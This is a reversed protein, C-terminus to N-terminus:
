CFLFFTHFVDIECFGDRTHHTRYIHEPGGGFSVKMLSKADRRNKPHVLRRLKSELKPIWHGLSKTQIYGLMGSADDDQAYYGGLFALLGEEDVYASVSDSRYLRKAEICFRRNPVRSKCVLRIDLRPRRKGKRAAGTAPDPVANVPDENHVSYLAMWDETPEDETLHRLHKCIEGTIDEEEALTYNAPQLAGYGLNLLCHVRSLFAARYDDRNDSSQTPLPPHKTTM